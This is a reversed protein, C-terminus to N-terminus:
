RKVTVRQMFDPETVAGNAAPDGPKIADVVDMGTVVRGVATYEGNLFPSDEMVIFFQSNASDRSAGRAMGVIGRVFPTDSIEAPLDPLPSGGQGARGPDAIGVRGFEVDGTQAMFGPLVRHFTVGDYAGQSALTVLREAHQPALDDFLDIEIQGFTRGEVDILLNPGPGDELGRMQNLSPWLLWAAVLGAGIVGFAAGFAKVDDM